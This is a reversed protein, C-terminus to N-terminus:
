GLSPSALPPFPLPCPADQNDPPHAPGRACNSNSNGVWPGGLEEQPCRREACPAAGAAAVAAPTCASATRAATGVSPPAPPTCAPLMHAAAASPPVPLQLVGTHRLQLPQTLLLLEQRAAPTGLSPPSPRPVAGPNGLCGMRGLHLAADVDLRFPRRGGCSPLDSAPALSPQLAWNLVLAVDPSPAAALEACAQQSGTHWALRYAHGLQRPLLLLGVM